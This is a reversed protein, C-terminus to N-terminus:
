FREHWGKKGTKIKFNTILWLTFLLPLGVWWLWEHIFKVNAMSLATYTILPMFWLTITGMPNANKRKKIM